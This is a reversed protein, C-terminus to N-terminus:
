KKRAGRIKNDLWTIRDRNMMFITTSGAYLGLSIIEFLWWDANMQIITGSVILLVVIADWTWKAWTTDPFVIERLKDSHKKVYDLAARASEHNVALLSLGSILLPIGGPGPLPGLIPVLILCGIGAADTAIIKHLSNKSDKKSNM